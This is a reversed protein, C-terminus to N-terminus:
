LSVPVIGFIDKHGCPEQILLKRLHGLYERVYQRKDLTTDGVINPYGSVTICDPDWATQMETTTVLLSHQRSMDIYCYSCHYCCYCQMTINTVATVITVSKESGYKYCGGLV